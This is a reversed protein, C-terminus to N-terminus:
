KAGLKALPKGESDLGVKALYEPNKELWPQQEKKWAEYEEPTDVVLIYRMSFHGRGCIEACALEYNFDPNGTEQRMEETTKNAVFSFRTQMGPVADQKVRFHPLYFSHLVDRARIKFEVPVGKPIHIQRPTFDDHAHKDTFDMGFTNEVDIKRFDYKGLVGDEGPYRVKWAFQYGMVEIVESNEPAPATIKNWVILGYLVLFTLAIAPVITWLFELKNNEPYFLAKREKKFQYRYSFWFLLVQTIIFVVGTIAMTIWFLRDTLMGHESAVPLNYQDFRTYSYWITAVLSLVLFLLMLLANIKNSQPSVEQKDSARMVTVLRHLRYVMLGIVVLLLVGITIIFGLM